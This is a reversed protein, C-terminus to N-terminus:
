HETNPSMRFASFQFSLVGGPGEAAVGMSRWDWGIGLKGGEHYRYDARMHPRRLGFHDSLIAQVIM